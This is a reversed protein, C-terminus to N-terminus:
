LDCSHTGAKRGHSGAVIPIYEQFGRISGLREWEQEGAHAAPACEQWKQMCERLQHVSPFAIKRGELALLHAIIM